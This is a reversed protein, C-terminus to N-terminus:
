YYHWLYYHWLSCDKAMIPFEGGVSSKLFFKESAPSTSLGWEHGQIVRGELSVCTKISLVIERMWVKVVPDNEIEQITHNIPFPLWLNVIIYLLYEAGAIIYHDHTSPSYKMWFLFGPLCNKWKFDCEGRVESSFWPYGADWTPGGMSM